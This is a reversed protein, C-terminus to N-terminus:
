QKTLNTIIAYPTQVSTVGTIYNGGGAYVGVWIENQGSIPTITLLGNNISYNYIKNGDASSHRINIVNSSNTRYTGSHQYITGDGSNGWFDWVGDAFFNLDIQGNSLTSSYSVGTAKWHGILNEDYTTDTINVEVPDQKTCSGFALIGIFLLYFIKKM